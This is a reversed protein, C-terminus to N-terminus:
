CGPCRGGFRYNSSSCLELHHSTKQTPFYVELLNQQYVGFAGDRIWTPTAYHFILPLFRASVYKSSVQKGWCQKKLEQEEHAWLNNSEELTYRLEVLLLPSSLMATDDLKYSLSLNANVQDNIPKAHSRTIPGNITPTTSPIDEDADCCIVFVM